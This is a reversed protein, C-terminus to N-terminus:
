NRGRKKVTRTTTTKKGGAARGNPGQKGARTTTTKQTTVKGNRNKNVTTTTTRQGVATTGNKRRATVTTTKTRVVTSHTRHPAYVTHARVVRHTTVVHCHRHYPTVRVYHVRWPAPRWPRWYGPYHAWRWPSVWVTYGPRYMFRVSPWLWVNVVVRYPALRVSPGGRGKKMDSGDAEFPEAYVEQGYLDEDGVIQLIAYEDGQKEIEIVAIDQSEEASVPVQLILAHVDGEMNDIVRIYDVEGDDNLDLNNVNNDESNLLKEFAEPSEAKKFLEIAGELSFHDGPLGTSDAPNVEQAHLSFSFLLFGGVCLLSSVCSLKM